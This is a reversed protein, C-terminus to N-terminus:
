YTDLPRPVNNIIKETFVSLSEETWSKIELSPLMTTTM